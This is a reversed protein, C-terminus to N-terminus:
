VPVVSMLMYLVFVLACAIMGPTAAVSAARHESLISVEGRGLRIKHMCIHCIILVVAAAMLGFIVLELLLLILFAEANEMVYEMVADVNTSNLIEEDLVLGSVLKPMVVGGMLNVLAHLGIPWYIKGSWTYMYALVMGLLFAYFFQFFNGHFLAFFTASILISVADGYRRTRDILLKRFLLEEGIPAIIVTCLLVVWTPSDEIATTLSNQYDYGTLGSLLSMLGNGILSGIYMLGFGIIALICFHGFRFPPKELTQGRSVYTPCHNGKELGRFSLLFAPLGFGYLPVVSLAWNFWWANYVDPFLYFALYSFAYQLSVWVVLLVMLSIGIRTFFRRSEQIDRLYTNQDIM